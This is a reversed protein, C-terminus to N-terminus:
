RPVRITKSLKITDNDNRVIHYHDLGDGNEDFNYLYEAGWFNKIGLIASRISDPKLDPAKKMAEALVLVADYAWSSYVDPLLNHRAKYAAAFEKAKPSADVHFDAVGYTGFLADGALKRGDIATISPSGLWTAKVGLQKIQKAMIGVDTSFTMYTVLGDAGSQKVATLVATFDKEGNNYGQVLAPERGLRKLEQVVLDRGGNGFADSAHVVAIKKFKLDDVAYKAIVKASFGDHPRCRFVWKSGSHTLGYNSGGIMVPIAAENITPLLAQIQTSRIPGLMAVIEKDELLRQLAAVAGPNTTKDDEFVLQFPRGKIGGTKNVQEVALEAGWKQYQGSEAGEGTASIVQGIRIPKGGAQAGAREVGAAFTVFGALLAALAQSRRSM